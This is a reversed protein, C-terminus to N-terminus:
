DPQLAITLRVQTSDCSIDGGNGGRVRLDLLAGAEARYWGSRISASGGNPFAGKAITPQGLLRLSWSVGDGCNDDRDILGLRVRVSGSKPSQWRIVVSRSAGPHVLLAGAPWDVGQPVLDQGSANVGVWPLKDKDGTSVQRGHWTELGPVGFQDTWFGRLLPTGSGSRRFSWAGNPNAQDPAVLFDERANFAILTPSGAAAESPVLLLLGFSTVAIGVAARKLNAFRGVM